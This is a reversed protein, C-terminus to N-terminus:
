ALGLRRRIAPMVVSRNHRAYTLSCGIDVLRAQALWLASPELRRAEAAARVSPRSKRRAQAALGRAQLTSAGRAVRDIKKLLERATRRTPHRVVADAAYAIAFGAEECRRGFEFDGGSRLAEDFRLREVVTRRVALNVTAAYGLGEVYHQQDLHRMADVLEAPRPEAAMVFEVAGGSRSVRDLVRLHARVWGPTVEADADTFLVVKAREPLADLAANRAAYSGRNHPLVVVTARHAAATAEVAAEPGDVAVITDVLHAPYDLTAISRLTRDLGAADRHVPVCIAVPTLDHDAREM